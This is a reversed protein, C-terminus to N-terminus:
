LYIGDVSAQCLRGLQRAPSWLQDLATALRGRLRHSCKSLAADYIGDLGLAIKLGKFLQELHVGRSIEEKRGLCHLQPIRPVCVRLHAPGM